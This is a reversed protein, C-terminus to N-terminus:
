ITNNLKIFCSYILYISNSFHTIPKTEKKKKTEEKYTDYEAQFLFPCKFLGKKSDTAGIRVEIGFTNAVLNCSVGM